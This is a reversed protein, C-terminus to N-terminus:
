AARRDRRSRVADLPQPDIWARADFDREIFGRRLLFDKYGVLGAIAQEDLDTRQQRHLDHGYARRVWGENSRTERALYAFTEAPHAAAWDGVAVVRALFREVIDPRAELLERDVTLPRPTGNNARVLPDPHARLDFIVRAGVEATVEAGHAGKVFVADVEGQLLADIEEGYGGHVPPPDQSRILSLHGIPIDHFDVERESVGAEDLAVEIARLASARRHDPVRNQQPLAVRRGRLDAATRIGSYPRTILAQFEDTWNLGLVCTDRGRSRSWIPPTSGGQRFSHPPHREHEPALAWGEGEFLSYVAIGDPQFEEIFCGLQAALGLPTPQHARLYWFRGIDPLPRNAVCM